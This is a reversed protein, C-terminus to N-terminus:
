HRPAQDTQVHDPAGHQHRQDDHNSVGRQARDVIPFADAAFAAAFPHAGPRFEQGLDNQRQSCGIYQFVHESTGSRRRGPTLPSMSRPQHYMGIAAKMMTLSDFATFKVSPSSPSAPSIEAVAKAANPPM